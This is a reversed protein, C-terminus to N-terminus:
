IFESNDNNKDHNIVYENCIDILSKSSHYFYSNDDCYSYTSNDIYENDVLYDNDYLYNDDSM